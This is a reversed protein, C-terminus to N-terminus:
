RHGYYFWIEEVIIFFILHLIATPFSPLEYGCKMTYMAAPAM